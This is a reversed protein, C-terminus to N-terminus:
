GAWLLILALLHRILSASNIAKLVFYLQEILEGTRWIVRGAVLSEFALQEANLIFSM